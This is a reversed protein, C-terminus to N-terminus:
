ANNFEGLVEPDAVVEWRMKLGNLNKWMYVAFAPDCNGLDLLVGQCSERDGLWDVWELSSKIESESAAIPLIWVKPNEPDEKQVDISLLREGLNKSGQAPDVKVGIDTAKQAVLLGVLMAAVLHRPENRCVVVVPGDAEGSRWDKVRKVEIFASSLDDDAEACAETLLDYADRLRVLEISDGALGRAALRLPTWLPALSQGGKLIALDISDPAVAVAFVHSV